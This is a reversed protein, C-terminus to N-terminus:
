MAAEIVTAVESIDPLLPTDYWSGVTMKAEFTAPSMNHQLHNITLRGASFAREVDVSTAPATLYDLAMRALRPKTELMANWYPLVGGYTGLSETETGLYAEISDPNPTAPHLSLSSFPMERLWRNSQKTENAKSELKANDFDTSPPYSINFRAVIMQKMMEVSQPAFHTRFWGMKIDPCMVIAIFYVECITMNEMYKNFVNLAAQAAVRTVPHINTAGRMFALTNRLDVLAPLVQYILPVEWVELSENLEDALPWLTEKLSYHQLKLSPESTLWQVPGRLHIHGDLAAHDTNWRTPVRRPLSKRKSDKLEPYMSIIEELKLKLQPSDHVRRALGSVISMISQADQLESKTPVIGKSASVQEIAQLISDQVVLTDHEFQAPDVNNSGLVEADDADVGEAGVEKQTYLFDQIAPTILKSNQNNKEIVERSRKSTNSFPSMFAKAMLNIIHALCRVYSREGLFHPIRQQLHRTLTLNNSANDLCAALIRNELGYQHLCSAVKEALYEGTHTSTLRIFELICRYIKPKDYWVVIVGLYSESIPSTWGDIALHIAGSITKFYEKIRPAYKAHIADPAPEINELDHAILGLRQEDCEKAKRKLHTTGHGTNRRLRKWSEHRPNGYKCTFWFVIEVPTPPTQSTDEVREVSVIYHDNYIDSYWSERASEIIDNDSYSWAAIDGLANIGKRRKWVKQPESPSYIPPITNVM